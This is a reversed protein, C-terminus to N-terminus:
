SAAIVAAASGAEEMYLVLVYWTFLLLLALDQRRRMAPSTQVTAGQRLIGKASYRLLEEGQPTRLAWESGFLSVSKFELLEGGALRILGKSGGWNPEFVAIDTETGAVRASARPSFFGSRKFTFRSGETEGEALSGFMKVFRLTLAVLDGSCLEFSRDFVAPQRWELNDLQLLNLAM